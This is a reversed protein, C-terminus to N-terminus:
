KRRGQLANLYKSAELREAAGIGNFIEVAHQLDALAAEDDGLADACRASGYMAQAELPRSHVDRALDLAERYVALAESAGQADELLSGRSVLVECQGSRDGVDGFAAMAQDLLREAERLDGAAHRVCGLAHLTNAVGLRSGVDEFVALAREQLGAAAEHNGLKLQIRGLDWLAYAGGQSINLEEFISLAQEHHEAAAAYDGVEFRIRGLEALDHAENIRNGTERCIMRSKTLADQAAAYDGVERWTRGLTGHCIAEGSVDGVEVFMALARGVLEIAAAFQGSSHQVLGLLWNTHALGRVDGVGQYVDLAQSFLPAADALNGVDYRGQGLKLLVNAEGLPENAERYLRLAQGLLEDAAAYDCVVSHIAGIGLLATAEGIRDGSARAADAASQHLPVAQGWLGDQNLFGAMSESLAILRIPQAISEIREIASNLNGQEARMWDLASKRDAIAPLEPTSEPRHRDAGPRSHRAILRDAGASASQYYDLLRFLAEDPNEDGVSLGRAYLRILDHFEYRGLRRQIILNQDLLSELVAEAAPVSIEGLAAAAYADFDPGPVLGLHRFMRREGATLARYSADFVATLDRDEDNLRSLRNGEDRLEDVLDEVRAAKRHRLRSASIRLALPIRGCLDILEDVAPASVPIRGPGAIKGLLDVAEPGSLPEVSLTHADDLATLRRRSTILVLCGHASPLLPRVQASNEANDLVILTRTGSLRARYYAAREDLGQPIAQHPVGLSRLLRSLADGTSVPDLGATYGHLDLFLQGDPFFASAHHAAHIALTSKGVGAPGDIAVITPAGTAPGGVTSEVLSELHALERERGSFFRTNAPLQSNQRTVPGRAGGTQAAAAVAAAAAKTPPEQASAADGALVRSHIEQVAPAPEVGLEEVLMTRLSRYIQLAEGQRGAGQLALMLQGAFAERLPHQAVLTQLEAIAHSARGLSLEAHIRAELAELRQEELQRVRLHGELAPLGALPRGRWIALAQSFSRTAQEWRAEASAKRGEGCSDAFLELDLEGPEVHVRYGSPTATIRDGAAGLSQRLRTVQNYLAANASQPPKAGWLVEILEDAPVATGADLLLRALLTRRLTGRLEVPAEDHVELPGLLAFQM